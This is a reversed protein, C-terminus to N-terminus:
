NAYRYLYQEIYEALAVKTSRDKRNFDFCWELMEDKHAIRVIIRLMLVRCALVNKSSGMVSYTESIDIKEIAEVLEKTM